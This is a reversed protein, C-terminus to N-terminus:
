KFQRSSYQLIWDDNSDSDVDYYRRADKITESVNGSTEYEAIMNLLLLNLRERDKELKQLYTKTNPNETEEAM